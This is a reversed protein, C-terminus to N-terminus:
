LSGDGEGKKTWPGGAPWFNNFSKGKAAESAPPMIFERVITVVEGFNVGALSVNAQVLFNKWQIMKAPNSCFEPSLGLPSTLPIQTKQRQFTAIIARSLDKGKFEYKQSLYFIDFYDKMRSNRMGLDVAAHFKEAILTERACARLRPAPFNLLVPFRIFKAPPILADGYGLDIQLPVKAKGLMGTLNIRIGRFAARGRIEEARVSEPLFNLGDPKTKIACIKQFDSSLHELSPPELDLFDADRTTRHLEEEWVSFLLAGKLIFRNRYRSVSIRYLLRELAYKTLLVNFEIKKQRSINLLRQKVSAPLNTPHVVSM